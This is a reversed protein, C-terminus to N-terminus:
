KVAIVRLTTVQRVWRAPRKDGPAVIRLPGEKADMPKGDRRDAVIIERTAFAPDVEALAFVVRYGDAAEVLLAETMRPGRMTDGLPIGGLSLLNSLPVGEFQAAADHDRANITLHPADAIQAATLTTAHGDSNIIQLTQASLGSVLLLFCYLANLLYRPRTM